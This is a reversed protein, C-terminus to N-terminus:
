NEDQERNNLRIGFTPAGNQAGAGDMGRRRGRRGGRNGDTPAVAMGDAFAQDGSGIPGALAGPVRLPAVGGAPAPLPPVVPVGNAGSGAAPPTTEMIPVRVVEGDIGALTLADEEIKVIRTQRWSDGESVYVSEQTASNELLAELKGDIEISGTYIWTGDGGALAGPIGGVVAANRDSERIVLPKFANAPKEKLSAFKAKYDEPLFGDADGKKAFSPTVKKKTKKVPTSDDTYLYAVVCLGVLGVWVVPSTKKQAAAM